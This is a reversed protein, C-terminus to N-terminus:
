LSCNNNHFGMLYHYTTYIKLEHFVLSIFLKRDIKGGYRGPTEKSPIIIIIMIMKLIHPFLDIPKCLSLMQCVFEGPEAGDLREM